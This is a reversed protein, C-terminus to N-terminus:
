CYRNLILGLGSSGFDFLIKGVLEQEFFLFKM